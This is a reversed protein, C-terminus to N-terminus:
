LPLNEDPDVTKLWTSILLEQMEDSIGTVKIKQNNIILEASRVRSSRKLWSQVTRVVAAVAGPGLKVLFAGVVGGDIAKAGEPIEDERLQKVSEVTPLQALEDHLYETLGELQGPDIGEEGALQVSLEKTKDPM